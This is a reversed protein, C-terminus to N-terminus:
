PGFSSFRHLFLQLFLLPASSALCLTRNWLILANHHHLNCQLTSCTWWIARWVILLRQAFLPHIFHRCLVPFIAVFVISNQLIILLLLAILTLKCFTSPKGNSIKLSVSQFLGPFIESTSNFLGPTGCHHIFFGVYEEPLGNILCRTYMSANM